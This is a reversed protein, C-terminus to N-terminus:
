SNMMGHASEEPAASPMTGQASARFTPTWDQGGGRGRRKSERTRSEVM